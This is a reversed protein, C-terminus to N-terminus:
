AVRPIPATAQAPQSQHGWALSTSAGSSLKPPREDALNRTAELSLAGRWSVSLGAMCAASENKASHDSQYM